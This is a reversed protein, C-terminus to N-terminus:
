TLTGCFYNVVFGCTAGSLELKRPFARFIVYVFRKIQGQQKKHYSCDCWVLEDAAAFKSSFMMSSITDHLRLSALGTYIYM